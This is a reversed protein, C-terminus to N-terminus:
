NPSHTPAISPHDRRPFLAIGLQRDSEQALERTRRINELAKLIRKVLSEVNEPDKLWRAIRELIEPIERQLRDTYYM